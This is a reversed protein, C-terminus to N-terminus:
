SLTRISMDRLIKLVGATNGEALAILPKKGLYPHPFNLWELAITEKGFIRHLLELCEALEKLNITPM